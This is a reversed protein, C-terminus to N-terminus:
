ATEGPGATQDTAAPPGPDVLSETAGGEAAEDPTEALPMTWYFNAGKGPESLLRIECGMLRLNDRVIALGIGTGGHQRTPGADIQYFREFVRTQEDPAIGPGQDSISIKVLRKGVRDTHIRVERGQESFKTANRLLETFVTALMEEDAHVRLDDKVGERNFAVGAEEADAAVKECAQDIMAGLLVVRLNTPTHDRALDAYRVLSEILALLKDINRLSIELYRQAGEPVEGLHGQAFLETYGRVSVLPTRLEHSINALLNNKMEDLTRLEQNARSLEATRRQVEEELHQNLKDLEENMRQIEVRQEERERILRSHDLARQLILGLEELEPIPKRIFDYAGLRLARLADDFDSFATMIVKPTDPHLENAREVISFGDPGPLRLDTLIIDFSENALREYAQHGDEALICVYGMETLYERIVERMPRSDEVILIRGLM